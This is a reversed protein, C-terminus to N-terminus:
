LTDSFVLLWMVNHGLALLFLLLTALTLFFGLISFIFPLYYFKIVDISIYGINLLHPKYIVHTDNTYTRKIQENGIGYNASAWITVIIKHM